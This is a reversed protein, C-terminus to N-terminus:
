EGKHEMREVRRKKIEGRREIREGKREIKKGEQPQAFAPPQYAIIVGSLLLVATLTKM